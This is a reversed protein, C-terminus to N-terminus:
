RDIWREREGERRKFKSNYEFSPAPTQITAAPRGTAHLIHQRASHDSPLTPPSTSAKQRLVKVQQQIGRSRGTGGHTSM